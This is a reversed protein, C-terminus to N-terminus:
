PKANKERENKFGSALVNSDPVTGDFTMVLHVSLDFEANFEGREANLLVAGRFGGL